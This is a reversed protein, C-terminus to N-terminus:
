SCLIAPDAQAGDTLLLLGHRLDNRWFIAFPMNYQMANVASVGFRVIGLMQTDIQSCNLPNPFLEILKITIVFTNPTTLLLPSKHRWEVECFPSFSLMLYQILHKSSTADGQIVLSVKLLDYMQCCSEVAHQVLQPAWDNSDSQKQTLIM